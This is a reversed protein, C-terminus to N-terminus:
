SVANPAWESCALCQKEYAPSTTQAVATGFYFLPKKVCYRPTVINAELSADNGIRTSLRSM